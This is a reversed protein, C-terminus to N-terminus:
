RHRGHYRLQGLTEVRHRHAPVQGADHMPTIAHQDTARCIQRSSGPMVSAKHLFPPPRHHPEGGPGVGTTGGSMGGPCCIGEPDGVGLYLLLQPHAAPPVQVAPLQTQEAPQVPSNQPVANIARLWYTPTLMTNPKVVSLLLTTSVVFALYSVWKSRLLVSDCIAINSVHVRSLDDPKSM